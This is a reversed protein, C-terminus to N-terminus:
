DNPFLFKDVTTRVCFIRHFIISLVLLGMLTRFFSYNATNSIIVALLITAIVDVFAIDGPLRTAHSGEKPIGFIENYKCSM